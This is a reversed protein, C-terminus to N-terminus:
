PDYAIVYDFSGSPDHNGGTAPCKTKARSGNHFLEQCKCCWRWDGQGPQGKHNLHYEFSGSHDHHGGAVCKAAGNLSFTMAQSKKCWRWGHQSGGHPNAGGHPLKYKFSGGFDHGGGKACVSPGNGSFTMNSCKNCWRWGDQLKQHHQPQPQPQPHHHHKKREAEERRRREEEEHQRRAAEERERKLANRHETVKDLIHAIKNGHSHLEHHGLLKRFHAAFHDLAKLDFTGPVYAAEAHKHELGFAKMIHMFDHKDNPLNDGM